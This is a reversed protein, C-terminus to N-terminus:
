QQFVEAKMTTRKFVENMVLFECNLSMTTCKKIASVVETNLARYKKIASVVKTNVARCKKNNICETNGESSQKRRQQKVM